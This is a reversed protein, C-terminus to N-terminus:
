KNSTNNEKKSLEIYLLEDRERIEESYWKMFKLTKISRYILTLPIVTCSLYIVNVWISADGLNYSLVVGDLKIIIGIDFSIRQIVNIDNVRFLIDAFGKCTLNDYQFLKTQLRPSYGISYTTIPISYNTTLIKKTITTSIEYDLSKIGVLHSAPTSFATIEIGYYHDEYNMHLAYIKLNIGGDTTTFDKENHYYGIGLVQKYNFVLGFGILYLVLIISYIAIKLRVKNRSKM